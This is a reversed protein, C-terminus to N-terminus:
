ISPIKLHHYTHGSIERQKYELNLTEVSKELTNKFKETNNLRIAVYSGAEDNVFSIDQGFFDFIDEIEFGLTNNFEKKFKYYDNMDNGQAILAITNEISVFDTRSPLGIVGVMKVDGMIYFNPITKVIPMYSRFGTVPMDVVYKLRNIGDSTGSGFAISKMSSIGMVALGALERQMGLSSGIGTLKRPNAWVFTGQGSTDITKEIAKMQHSPNPIFSKIVDSLNNPSLSVGLLITLRSQAKDWQLQTSMKAINLEAYGNEQIEKTVEIQPVSTSLSELVQQIEDVSKFEVNATIVLNPTPIAPDVGEIGIVEIPSTIRNLLIKAFLQGEESPIEPIVNQDVGDRIATVADVLAQANLAKDFVNGKATGVFSWFNPIRVYAFASEPLNESLFAPKVLPGDSAVDFERLPSVEHKKSSKQKEVVAEEIKTESQKEGQCATLLLSFVISLFVVRNRLMQLM